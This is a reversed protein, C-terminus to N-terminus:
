SEDISRTERMADLVQAVRALLIARLNQRRNKDTKETDKESSSRNEMGPMQRLAESIAVIMEAQGEARGQEQWATRKADGFAREVAANGIWEAAWVGVREEDVKNDVIDFHGIDVWLLQTGNGTLRRTFEPTFMADRIDGRPDQQNERPATLSDITHANIYDEIVGRVQISVYDNWTTLEVERAPARRKEAAANKEDKRASKAEASQAAKPQSAVAPPPADKERVSLNYAMNDIATSLFPYPRNPTRVMPRDNVRESELRYRFNIDRVRVLIGDRTMVEVKEVYGHQDDLSAVMGITEFRTMMFSTTLANRSIKRLKRFLVVNGPQIMIYGPGGIVDLLNIQKPPIQKQGNDINLRPYRWAFMSSVVYRLADKLNKLHYIDKVFYAGAVLVCALAGLVPFIYRLNEWSLLFVVLQEVEAPFFRLFVDVERARRVIGVVDVREFVVGGIFIFMLVILLALLRRLLGLYIEGYGPNSHYWAGVAEPLSKTFFTRLRKVM